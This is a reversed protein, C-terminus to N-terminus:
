PSSSSWMGAEKEAATLREEELSVGSTPGRLIERTLDPKPFAAWVERQHSFSRFNCAHKQHPAAKKLESYGGFAHTNGGKRAHVCTCVGVGEWRGKTRLSHVAELVGPQIRLSVM